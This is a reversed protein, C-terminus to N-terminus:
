CNARISKKGGFLKDYNALLQRMKDKYEEEEDLNIMENEYIKELGELEAFIKTGRLHKICDSLTIDFLKKFIEKKKEEKENTLKNILNKNHEEPFSTFKKTIKASFIEGITKNLLEKNYKASANKIQFHENKLLKKIYIGQGINYNYLVSIKNNVFKMISDFIVKKVRRISNETMYKKNKCEKNKKIYTKSKLLNKSLNSTNRSVCNSNQNKNGKINQYNSQSDLKNIPLISFPFVDEEKKSKIEEKYIDNNDKGSEQLCLENKVSIKPSIFETDELFDIFNQIM